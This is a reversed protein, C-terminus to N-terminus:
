ALAKNSGFFEKLRRSLSPPEQRVHISVSNNEKSLFFISSHMVIAVHKDFEIIAHVGSLPLMHFPSMPDISNIILDNGNIEIGHEPSVGEFLLAINLDDISEPRRNYKKYITEIVKKTIM